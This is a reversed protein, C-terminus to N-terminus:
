PRRGNRRWNELLTLRDRLPLSRVDEGGVALMDFAAFSAPETHALRATKAQGASLRRQLADFDLRGSSWVVAEGDLVWGEPIAAAALEPFYRTLNKGQRSWLSVEEDCVVVVRFGDWKPEHM